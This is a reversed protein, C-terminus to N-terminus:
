LYNKLDSLTLQGSIDVSTFLLVGLVQLRIWWSIMASTPGIYNMSSFAVGFLLTTIIVFSLLGVEL